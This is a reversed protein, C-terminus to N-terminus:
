PAILKIYASAAIREIIKRGAGSDIPVTAGVSAFDASSLRDGFFVYSMGEGGLRPRWGLGHASPLSRHFHQAWARTKPYEAPSSHVIENEHLSDPRGPVKVQRLEPETLEVIFLDSAVVFNTLHFEALRKRAYTPDPVHPIDHFVSELAAAKDTTGAYFTPVNSGSSHPFPSFRAGGEAIGMPKPRGVKDLHPNFSVGPYDPSHFRWLSTGRSLPKLVLEIPEAIAPCLPCDSM